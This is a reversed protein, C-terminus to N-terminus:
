RRDGGCAKGLIKSLSRQARVDRVPKGEDDRAGKLVVNRLLLYIMYQIGVHTITLSQTSFLCGGFLLLGRSEDTCM